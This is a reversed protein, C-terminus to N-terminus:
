WSWFLVTHFKMRILAFSSSDGIGEFVRLFSSPLDLGERQSSYLLEGIPGYKPKNYKPFFVASLAAARMEGRCFSSSSM